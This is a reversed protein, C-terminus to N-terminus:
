SPRRAVATGDFRRSPRRCHWARSADAIEIFIVIIGVGFDAPTSRGEIVAKVCAPDM